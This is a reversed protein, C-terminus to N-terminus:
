PNYGGKRFCGKDDLLPLFLNEFITGKKFAELPCDYVDGFGQYPSSVIALPSDSLEDANGCGVCVDTDRWTGSKVPTQMMMDSCCGFQRRAGSTNYMNMGTLIGKMIKSDTVIFHKIRCYIMHGSLPM